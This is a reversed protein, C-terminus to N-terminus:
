GALSILLFRLSQVLLVSPPPMGELNVETLTLSAVSTANGPSLPNINPVQLQVLESQCADVSLWLVRSSLSSAGAAYDAHLRRIDHLDHVQASWTILAGFAPKCDSIRRWRQIVVVM